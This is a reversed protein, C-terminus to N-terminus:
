ITRRKKGGVLYPDSKMKEEARFRSRREEVRHGPPKGTRYVPGMRM